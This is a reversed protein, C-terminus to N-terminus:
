CASLKSFVIFKLISLLEGARLKPNDYHMEIVLYRGFNDGGIPLAVEPPFVFDQLYFTYPYIIPYNWALQSYSFMLQLGLAVHIRLDIRAHHDDIYSGIGCLIYICSYSM